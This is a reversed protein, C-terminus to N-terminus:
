GARAANRIYELAHKIDYAIVIGPNEHVFMGVAQGDADVVPRPAGPNGSVVAAVCFPSEKSPQQGHPVFVVPGGSFGPNNHGDLVLTSGVFASIVCGKVLPLPFGRNLHGADQSYHYPFGLFYAQQGLVINGATTPLPHNPSLQIEPELVAIDCDNPDGKGVVDCHLDKWVEDHYIGVEGGSYGPLMHSATILYQREEVNITFATGMNGAYRIRFTRELVNNRVM